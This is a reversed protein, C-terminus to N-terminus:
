TPFNSKAELKEFREEIDDHRVSHAAQEQRVTIVEKYVVDMKTYVGDKFQNFEDRTPLDAVQHQLAVLGSALNHTVQVLNQTTKVLNQTVLNLNALDKEINIVRKDLKIVRKDLKQFDKKTPLQQLIKKLNDNM